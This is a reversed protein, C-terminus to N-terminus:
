LVLITKICAEDAVLNKITRYTDGLIVKSGIELEEANVATYVRSKDFEM